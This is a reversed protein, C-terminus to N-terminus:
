AVASSKGVSPQQSTVAVAPLLLNVKTVFTSPRSGGSSSLSNPTGTARSTSGTDPNVTEPFLRKNEYWVGQEIGSLCSGACDLPAARSVGAGLAPAMLLSGMGAGGHSSGLECRLSYRGGNVASVDVRIEVVPELVADVRKEVLLALALRSGFLAARNGGPGPSEAPCHVVEFGIVVDVVFAHRQQAMGAEPFSRKPRPRPVGTEGQDDRIVRTTAAGSQAAAAEALGNLADVSRERVPEAVVEALVVVVFRRQGDVLM